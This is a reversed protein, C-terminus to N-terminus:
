KNQSWPVIKCSEGVWESGDTRDCYNGEYNIYKLVSLELLLKVKQLYKMKSEFDFKSYKARNQEGYHTLFNRMDAMKESEINSICLLNSLSEIKIKLDAKKGILVNYMLELGIFVSIYANEFIVGNINAQNYWHIATSLVDKNDENENWKQYFLDWATDLGDNNRKPKWSEYFAYPPIDFNKVYKEITQEDNLYGQFILIPTKRGFTFSLFISFIHLVQEAEKLQINGNIKRIIGNHTIINGGGYNQLNNEIVKIDARNEIIIEYQDNSFILRDSHFGTECRTRVGYFSELNFIPFYVYDLSINKNGNYFYQINGAYTNDEYQTILARGIENNNVAMKWYGGIDPHLLRDVNGKFRIQMGNGWCICIVADYIDISYQDNTLQFDGNYIVIDENPNQMNLHHPLRYPIM